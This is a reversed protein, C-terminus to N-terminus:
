GKPLHSKKMKRRERIQKTDRHMDGYATSIARDFDAPEGGNEKRFKEADLQNEFAWKPNATMVGPKSGGVVWFAKEADILKKSYYDGVGIYKPTKDINNALDLAACHLSCTGLTSGDDYEILIRSQAFKGRDMGCYNCSPHEDVDTPGAAFCLSSMTLLLFLTSLVSRKM